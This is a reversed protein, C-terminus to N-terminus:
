CKSKEQKKACSQSPGLRGVVFAGSGDRKRETGWRSTRIGCRYDVCEVNGIYASRGSSRVRCEAITGDAVLGAGGGILHPKVKYGGAIGQGDRYARAQGNRINDNKCAVIAREESRHFARAPRGRQGECQRYHGILSIVHENGASKDAILGVEREGHGTGPIAVRAQLRGAKNGKRRREVTRVVRPLGDIKAVGDCSPIHGAGNFPQM